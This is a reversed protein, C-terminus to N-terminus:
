SKSRSSNKSPVRGRLKIVAPQALYALEPVQNRLWEEKRQHFEKRPQLLQLRNRKRLGASKRM